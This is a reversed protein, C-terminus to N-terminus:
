TRRAKGLVDSVRYLAALFRDADEKTNYFAPSVRVAGKHELAALLPQACHHGSRVAVGLQDLLRAVDFCHAGRLNFSVCGARQVPNGLLEIDPRATLGAILYQLLKHEWAAIDARDLVTLYDAAAGLGICGVINPTGAELRFPLESYVASCSTAQDVMGGGFTDPPLQELLDKKGYLIGTGTPGMMKHGSLCFFDCDLQIMDLPMHRVAQAGDVLVRAGARHAQEVIQEVPNVAGTVNSVWTVAVLRAKPSLFAEFATMDLEGSQTVPVVRLVAGTRRCAEQWPILNAHHELETTIIEDGPNLLGFSLSRAALNISHTTGSTFIIEEPLRAGLFRRIHERASELRATSQESLTHVGRHVNAQWCHYQEAMVALIPEPVQTTAANDLYVLPRGNVSTSLIPFDGRVSDFRTEM